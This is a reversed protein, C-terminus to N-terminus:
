CIDYLASGGNPASEREGLQVGDIIQSPTPCGASATQTATALASLPPLISITTRNDDLSSDNNDNIHDHNDNNNTDVKDYNDFHKDNNPASGRPRWPISPTM